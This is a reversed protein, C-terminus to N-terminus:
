QKPKPCKAIRTEPKEPPTFAFSEGTPGTGTVMARTRWSGKSCYFITHSCTIWTGAPPIEECTGKLDGKLNADIVSGDATYFKDEPAIEVAGFLTYAPSTTSVCWATATVTPPGGADYSPMADFPLGHRVTYVRYRGDRWPWIEGKLEPLEVKLDEM